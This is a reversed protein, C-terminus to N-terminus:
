NQMGGFLLRTDIILDFAEPDVTNIIERADDKYIQLETLLGDKVFLLVNIFPGYGAVTNRDSQTASVLPGDRFCARTSPEVKLGISGYEDLTRAKARGIQERLIEVGPLHVSLLKGLIAKELDTLPRYGAKPM